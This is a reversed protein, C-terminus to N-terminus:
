FPILGAEFDKQSSAFAAKISNARGAAKSKFSRIGGRGGTSSGTAM